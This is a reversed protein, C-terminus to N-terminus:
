PCFPLPAPFFKRTASGSIARGKSYLSGSKVEDAIQLANSIFYKAKLLDNKYDGAKFLYYSGLLLLLPLQDVKKFEKLSAEMTGSKGSDLLSIYKALSASEFGEDYPLMRSLGYIRCSLLLSSDLDIQGQAVNYIFKGTSIVLLRKKAENYDSLDPHRISQGISFLCLWQLIALFYIKSM